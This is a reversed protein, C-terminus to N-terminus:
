RAPLTAAPRVERALRPMERERAVELDYGTQLNMWFQPTTDFYLALRLATDVTIARREHVSEAIRTLPVRLDLALRNMSLERPGM